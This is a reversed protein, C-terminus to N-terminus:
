SVTDILQKFSQIKCYEFGGKEVTHIIEGSSPCITGTGNKSIFASLYMNKEDDVTILLKGGLFWGDDNESTYVGQADIAFVSSSDDTIFGSPSHIELKSVRLGTQTDYLTITKENAILLDTGNGLFAIKTNNRVYITNLFSQKETDYISIETNGDYIAIIGNRGPLIVPERQIGLYTSTKITQAKGTHTDVLVINNSKEDTSRESIVLYQNNKTLAAFKIQGSSNYEARCTTTEDLDLFYVTKEDMTWLAKGDDSFEVTPEKASLNDQVFTMPIAYRNMEKGSHIDLFLVTLDGNEEKEAVLICKKNKSINCNKIGNETKSVYSFLPTSGHCPYIEFASFSDNNKSVTTKEYGIFRLIEQENNLYHIVKIEYGYRRMTYNTKIFSDPFPLQITYFM